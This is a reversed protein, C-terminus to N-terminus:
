GSRRPCSARSCGAPARRSRRAPGLRPREIEERDLRELLVLEAREALEGRRAAELPADGGLDVVAVGRRVPARLDAGHRRVDHDGVRVHEVDPHQGEVRLPLGEERVQRVDDEVLDVGVAPDEARVDGVQQPPQQADRLVVAGPRLDDGARRGDGVRPLQRRPEGPALRRHDVVVAGGVGAAGEVEEVGRPAGGGREGRLQQALRHALVERRDDEGLRALVRLQDVGPRHVAVRLQALDDARVAGAVEGLLPALDLLLEEGARELRHDAGRRELHPDVDAPQVDADEDAVGARDRRGPLAAPADPPLVARREHDQEGARVGEVLVEHLVRPDEELRPELRRHDVRLVQRHERRVQRARRGLQRQALVVRPKREMGVGARASGGRQSPLRRGHARRHRVGDGQELAGAIQHAGDALVGPVAHLARRLAVHVDAPDALRVRDELLRRVTSGRGPGRREVPRSDARSRSSSGAPRTTSRGGLLALGREGGRGPAASASAAGALLCRRRAGLRADDAAQVAVAGEGLPVGARDVQVAGRLVLHGAEVQVPVVEVGARDVHVVVGQGVALLLGLDEGRAAALEHLVEDAAEALQLDGLARDAVLLLADGRPSRRETWSSASGGM